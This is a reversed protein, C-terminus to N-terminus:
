VRTLRPPSLSLPAHLLAFLDLGLRPQAENATFATALAPDQLDM